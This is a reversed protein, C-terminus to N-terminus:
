RVESVQRTYDIRKSQVYSSCDSSTQLFSFITLLKLDVRLPGTFMAAAPDPENGIREV